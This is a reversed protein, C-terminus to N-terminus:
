RVAPCNLVACGATAVPRSIENIMHVAGAGLALLVAILLTSIIVRARKM